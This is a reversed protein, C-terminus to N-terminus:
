DLVLEQHLEEDVGGIEGFDPIEGLGAEQVTNGGVGGQYGLGALIEDLQDLFDALDNGTRDAGFHGRDIEFRHQLFAAVERRQRRVDGDLYRQGGGSQLDALDQRGAARHDIDGQTKGRCLCQQGGLGAGAEDRGEDAPQVIDAM